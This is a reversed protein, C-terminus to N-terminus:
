IPSKVLDLYDLRKAGHLPYQDFFPIIIDRIETFKSVTLISNMHIKPLEELWGCNSRALYTILSSMLQSDRSHQSIILKLKVAFGQASGM